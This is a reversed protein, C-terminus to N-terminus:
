HEAYDIIQKASQLRVSTEFVRNTEQCLRNAKDLSKQLQQYDGMKDVGHAKNRDFLSM